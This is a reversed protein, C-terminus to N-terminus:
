LFSNEAILMGNRHMQVLKGMSHYCTPDKKLTQEYCTSLLVNNSRDFHEM